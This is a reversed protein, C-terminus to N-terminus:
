YCTQYALLVIDRLFSNARFDFRFVHRNKRLEGTEKSTQELLHGVSFMAEANLRQRDKDSHYTKPYLPKALRHSCREELDTKAHVGSDAASAVSM